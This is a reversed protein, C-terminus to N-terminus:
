IIQKVYNILAERKNPLRKETVEELLANLIEGIQKGESVGCAIVDKGSIELDTLFVCSDKDSKIKKYLNEIELLEVCRKAVMNQNQASHDAKEVYISRETDEGMRRMLRLVASEEASIRDDHHLVLNCVRQITDNDAKLRKLINRAIECSVKQHGKFHRFGQEDETCVHPKGMDHFLIALRILIDNPTNELAVMTHEFVDYVHWRSKQEFGVMDLIEPMFVGFVDKYERIIDACKPTKLIGCLESYIREASINKLLGKCQKVAKSTKEEITFSLRGAFRLARLIRLADEEFRKVPEGVCRIVKDNLDQKGGFFDIIGKEPHYAIANITFDRRAVDERLSSVFEVSQPHRNDAYEGDSRFTTVEYVKKNLVVSVTGHKIGTEIVSYGASRFVECCEEPKASTTFDYDHPKDGLLADRVCGGVYYAEYGNKNLIRIIEDAGLMIGYVM